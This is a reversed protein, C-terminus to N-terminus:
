KVITLKPPAKKIKDSSSSSTEQRDPVMGVKMLGYTLEDIEYSSVRLKQAIDARGLNEERLAAFVKDLLLSTERTMSQPESTRYGAQSIQICLNRNIWETTLGVSRLRYNLAAVSVGWHKKARILTDLTPFRLGTAMVSKMPMLFASAFANAEKEAESGHPQGHRHMVLHGLEHAADFRSHEASKLTNLFVYPTGNWWMSFADVEKADISLSFVRIGKSELLHVLNKIPQQGLGWHCRLAEAAAEPDMNRGLEPLDPTPLKFRQEIWENVQVAISGAGLAVNKLTVSMKSMARFSVADADIEEVPDEEFFFEEPFRLLQSINRLREPDPPFEGTEYATISRPTVGALKALDAKKLGRRNRAFTLRSPNFTKSDQDGKGRSLYTLNPAM